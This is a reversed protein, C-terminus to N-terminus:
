KNVCGHNGTEIGDITAKMVCGVSHPLGYTVCWPGCLWVCFSVTNLYFHVSIRAESLIQHLM